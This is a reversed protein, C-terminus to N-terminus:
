CSMKPAFTSKAKGSTSYLGYGPEQDDSYIHFFWRISGNTEKFYACNSDLLNFYQQENSISAVAAKSNASVGDSTVSPWGNEDMY